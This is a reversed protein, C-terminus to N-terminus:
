YSWKGTKKFNEVRKANRAEMAEMASDQKDLEAQSHKPDYKSGKIKEPFGPKAEWCKGAEQCKTGDYAMASMGVSLLLATAGTVALTKIKKM